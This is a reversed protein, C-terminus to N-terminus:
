MRDRPRYRLPSATWVGAWINEIQATNRGYPCQLGRQTAEPHLDSRQLQAFSQHQGRPQLSTGQSRYGSLHEEVPGSGGDGVLGAQPELWQKEWNLSFQPGTLLTPAAGDQAGPGVASFVLKRVTPILVGSARKEGPLHPLRQCARWAGWVPAKRPLVSVLRTASPVCVSVCVCEWWAAQGALM